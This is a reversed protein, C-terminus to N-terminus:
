ELFQVVRKGLRSGHKHGVGCLNPVLANAHSRSSFWIVSLISVLFPLFIPRSSGLEPVVTYRHFRSEVAVFGDLGSM